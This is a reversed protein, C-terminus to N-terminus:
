EYNKIHEDAAIWLFASLSIGHERTGAILREKDARSISIPIVRRGM